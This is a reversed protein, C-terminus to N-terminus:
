SKQCTAGTTQDSTVSERNEQRMGLEFFVDRLVDSGRCQQPRPAHGRRLPAWPYAHPCLGSDAPLPASRTRIEGPAGWAPVASEWVTPAPRASARVNAGHAPSTAPSRVDIAVAKHRAEHTNTRLPVWCACKAACARVRCALFFSGSGGRRLGRTTLLWSTADNEPKCRDHTRARAYARAIRDIRFRSDVVAVHSRGTTAEHPSLALTVTAEPLRPLPMRGHATARGAVRTAELPCTSSPALPARGPAKSASVDHPSRLSRDSRDRTARTRTHHGALPLPAPHCTVSTVSTPKVTAGPLPAVGRLEQWLRFCDGTWACAGCNALVKGTQLKPADCFPCRGEEFGLVNLLIGLEAQERVRRIRSLEIQTMTTM